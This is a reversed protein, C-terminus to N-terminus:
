QKAPEPMVYVSQAPLGAREPQVTVHNISFENKLLEKLGSLITECQDMHMDPVRAHCSPATDEGGLL